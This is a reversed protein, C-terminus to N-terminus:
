AANELGTMLKTILDIETPKKQLSPDLSAIKTYGYYNLIEENLTVKLGICEGAFAGSMFIKVGGYKFGGRKNVYRSIYGKPYEFDPEATNYKTRSRSYVESPTKDKLASHPRINNFDDKWVDSVIQQQKINKAPNVQRAKAIDLHMREHGGNYQPSAPPIFNPIIGLKLWWASLRSLGSFGQSSAFPTGNDSRIYEPLGHLKFCDIFAQKTLDLSPRELCTLALVYESFEDRITLPYVKKGDKTKWWGKFDVTWVHNCYKAKLVVREQPVKRRSHHRRSTVM